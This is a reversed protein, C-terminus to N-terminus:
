SKRLRAAHANFSLRDSESQHVRSRPNVASPAFMLRLTASTNMAAFVASLLKRRPRPQLKPVGPALGFEAAKKNVAVIERSKQTITVAEPFNDWMLHFARIIEENSM